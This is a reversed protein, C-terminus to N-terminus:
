HTASKELLERVTWKQGTLGSAVAPTTKLTGHVRCYNYHAIYLGLAAEHNRWSKSFGNSLRTMRRMFTRFNLNMRECHSTCVRNMDPFNHIAEKRTGKIKAPSYQRQDDASNKGFIKVLMGYDVRSGLQRPISDRDPAFRDSSLHFRGATAIRLKECFLETNWQDRKGLHWAVLLKSEREIATFLYSDGVEPGYGNLNATRQKCYVFQWVEDVQVDKVVVNQIENQMFRACREGVFRLLDLVTQRDVQALRAAVRASTGECLCKIIMEARDMDLRM